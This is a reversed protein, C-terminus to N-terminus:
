MWRQKECVFVQKINDLLLFYNAMGDHYVFQLARTFTHPMNEDPCLYLRVQCNRLIFFTQTKNEARPIFSTPFLPIYRQREPFSYNSQM